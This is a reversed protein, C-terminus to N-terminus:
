YARYEDAAERVDSERYALYKEKTTEVDSHGLIDSLFSIPMGQKMSHVAYTKRLTHATVRKRERGAQDTYIVEQIGAEEAIEKVIQNVRFENLQKSRKGVVLYDSSAASLYRSSRTRLYRDLYKQTQQTYYVTREEDKEYKSTKSNIITISRDDHNIDDLEIRVVESVRVGTELMVRLLLYDRLSRESASDLMASLEDEEGRRLYEVTDNQEKQTKELREVDLADVPNSEIVDRQVFDDYLTSVAYLQTRVTRAAYGESQLMYTKYDRVTIMDSDAVVQLSEDELYALYNKLASARNKLTNASFDTRTHRIYKNLVHEEQETADYGSTELIETVLEDSM